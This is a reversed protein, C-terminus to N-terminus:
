SSSRSLFRRTTQTLSCWCNSVRHVFRVPILSLNRSRCGHIHCRNDPLRDFLERLPVLGLVLRGVFRFQLLLPSAPLLELPAQVLEHFLVPAALLDGLLRLGARRDPRLQLTEAH